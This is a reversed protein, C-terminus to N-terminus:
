YEDDDESWEDDIEEIDDFITRSIFDMFCREAYEERRQEYDDHNYNM